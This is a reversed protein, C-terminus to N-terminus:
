VNEIIEKLDTLIMGLEDGNEISKVYIISEKFTNYKVRYYALVNNKFSNKELVDWNDWFENFVFVSNGEIKILGISISNEMLEILQNLKRFSLKLLSENINMAAIRNYIITLLLQFNPILWGIM